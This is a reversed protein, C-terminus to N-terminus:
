AHHHYPGERDRVHDRARLAAYVSFLFFASGLLLEMPEQEKGTIFKAGLYEGLHMGEPLDVTSEVYEFYLFLGAPLAFYLFLVPPATLLDRWIPGIRAFVSGLLIRGFAGYLAVCLFARQVPFSSLNHINTEDKTNVSAWSEPTEYGFIRQGWSAEEGAVFVLGLAFLAFLVSLVTEHASRLTMVVTFAIIAALAYVVVTLWEVPGDERIIWNYYSRNSSIMALGILTLAIPALALAPQALRNSREFRNVLKIQTINM